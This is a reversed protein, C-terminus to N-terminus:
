SPPSKPVCRPSQAPAIEPSRHGRFRRLGVQATGAPGRDDEVILLKPMPKQKADAMMGGKGKDRAHNPDIRGAAASRCVCPSAAAWGKTAKSMSGGAWRGSWSRAGRLRRHRLRRAEVLRFPKFLERAFLTPRCAWDSISWRSARSRQGRAASAPSRPKGRREGRHRKACSAGAGARASGVQAEVSCDAADVVSVQRQARYREVIRQLM